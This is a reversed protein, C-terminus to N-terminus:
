AVPKQFMTTVDVTTRPESFRLQEGAPAIVISHGSLHCQAGAQVIDALAKYSRRIKRRAKPIRTSRRQASHNGAADRKNVKLEVSHTLSASGHSAPRVVNLENNDKVNKDQGSSIKTSSQGTEAFRIELIEYLATQNSLCRALDTNQSVLADRITCPINTFPEKGDLMRCHNAKLLALLLAQQWTADESEAM